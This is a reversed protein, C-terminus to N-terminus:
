CHGFLYGNLEGGYEDRDGFAQEGDLWENDFASDIVSDDM